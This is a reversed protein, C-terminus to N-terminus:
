KQPKCRSVALTRPWDLFGGVLSSSPEGCWQGSEFRRKKLNSGFSLLPSETSGGHPMITFIVCHQLIRLRSQRCSILMRNTAVHGHGHGKHWWTQHSRDKSIGFSQLVEHFLFQCSGGQLTKGVNHHLFHERRSADATTLTPAASTPVPGKEKGNSISAMPIDLFGDCERSVFNQGLSNPVFFRGRSWLHPRKRALNLHWHLKCM